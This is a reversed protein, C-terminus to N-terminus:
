ITDSRLKMHKKQELRQRKNRLNRLQEELMNNARKFNRIDATLQEKNLELDESLETVKVRTSQAYGRNKLLRRRDKVQQIVEKPHKRLAWNLERVSMKSLQDDSSQFCANGEADAYVIVISTEEGGTWSSSSNASKRKKGKKEENKSPSEGKETM